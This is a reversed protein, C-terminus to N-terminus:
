SIRKQSDAHGNVCVVTYDAPVLVLWKQVNVLQGQSGLGPREQADFMRQIADLAACCAERSSSSMESGGRSTDSGYETLRERLKACERGALRARLEVMLGPWSRGAVAVIGKQLSLCHVLQDLFAALNQGATTNFSSFADFLVHQGLLTSFLFIAVLHDQHQQTVVDNYSAIARTQLRTAETRYMDKQTNDVTFTSQHAASLALLEDILFPATFAEKTAMQLVKAVDPQDPSIADLFSHNLHHLLQLHLISYNNEGVNPYDHAKTFSVPLSLQSTIPQASPTSGPSTSTSPTHYLTPASSSLAPGPLTATANLFSCDRKAASCIPVADFVYIPWETSLLYGDAGMVFEVVRFVSWAMILGSVWYLMRVIKEWGLDEGRACAAAAVVGRKMRRHFAVVTVCFLGFIDIQAVLGVIVVMLGAASGQITLPVIDGTVFLKTLRDSRIMSFQEGKVARIVRGLTMYIAAAFFVPALLIMSNQIAFPMLRGTKDHTSARAAYGIFEVGIAFPITFWARTKWAKWLYAFTLLAWLITFIAAAAISPLYKWLYYGGKYPELVAM